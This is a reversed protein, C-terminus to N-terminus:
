EGWKEHLKDLVIKIEKLVEEAQAKHKFLFGSSMRDRDISDGDWRSSCVASRNIFWYLKGIEPERSEVMPEFFDLYETPDLREIYHEHCFPKLRINFENVSADFIFGAKIGPLDKLLKYIKM